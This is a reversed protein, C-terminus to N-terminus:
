YCILDVRADPDPPTDPSAGQEQVIFKGSKLGGILPPIHNLLVITSPDVDQHAELYAAFAPSPEPASHNEFGENGTSM